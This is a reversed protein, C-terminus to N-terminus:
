VEIIAVNEIHYTHPFMDFPQVSEVKCGQEILYKLDRALTSPNCSVYIIKDKTLKLAYDLSEKTCGKRPPDLVTVDFKRGKTKLEKEFFMGADMNHLEVNKIGNEKIIKDALIVSEKVEEVSVVKKAVDSLCIGFATIGAYADLVLPEKYNESIYKKVYEFINNASSPNVQFFTEAGVKFNKDCLKEEIYGEGELIETGKGLILNTKNPNLNIGVGVIDPLETYIEHALKKVKELIKISNIVLIVLNKNNYESSRIVVHRLDGSHNREVYGSVGLEQCKSRIYDIIKDCSEPQIPCYKINVIEHSSPKYYGAIIRKSDRTESIPYQIKRRYEKIKPSPIVDNINVGIGRLEDEVIQKKLKLQYKYDIFQLQCAGCVKQMLCLPLCRHESPYIIETIVANGYSKNKKTLKIKVKDGPCANEVFIVYGDYRAIGYGLNSLKEIEVTLESPVDKKHAVQM